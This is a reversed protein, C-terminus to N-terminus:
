SGEDRGGMLRLLEAAGADGSAASERLQRMREGFPAVPKLDEVPPVGQWWVADIWPHAGPEPVEVKRQFHPFPFIVVGFLATRLYLSCNGFEDGGHGASVHLPRWGLDPGTVELREHLWM